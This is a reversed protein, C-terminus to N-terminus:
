KRSKKQAPSVTSPSENNAIAAAKQTKGAKKSQDTKAGGAVERVKVGRILFKGCKVDSYLVIFDGEQLGNAKVFDGTNELLYMRSKNNPWYRYRMNWVRSTGVDEMAISIGDRAELEPLHAEAEKKPLVIRGLSGVDSQKLVKQLLFKLNKETKLGQRRQDTSPVTTQYNQTEMATRDLVQPTEAPIVPGLSAAGGALSGWYVWNATNASAGTCNYDSGLRAIPENNDRNQLQGQHTQNRHHSLYRRQRAMRKKRAEKTASPGLRMMKDGAAVGHFYHYSYQNGYGGFGAQLPPSGAQHLNNVGYSQNCHPAVTFQSPPWSHATEMMNHETSAPQHSNINNLAGNSCPDGPYGISQYSPPPVAVMTAPDTAYPQLPSVWQCSQPIGFLNPNSNSSPNTTLFYSPASDNTNIINEKACRRKNQLHSTQVWELILKLLQKMAEKGGGLRKAACEITSKKLKVSRLDNASVSDKNTKLWELFVDSMEGDPNGGKGQIEEECDNGNSLAHQDQDEPQQQMTIVLQEQRREIQNQPYEELQCDDDQFVLLPDFFDNIELMDLCPFPEEMEGDCNVPPPMLERSATSSLTALPLPAVADEVLLNDEADSKLVAWSVASASSSTATSSSSTTSCTATRVQLTPTSSSSSSSSMCPFDPLPPLDAYFMSAENVGLLEDQADQLWIESEDNVNLAHEEEM